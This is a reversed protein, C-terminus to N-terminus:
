LKRRKRITTQYPHCNMLRKFKSPILHMYVDTSHSRCCHGLLARTVTFGHRDAAYTAFTHRLMRPTVNQKVGAAKATDRVMREIWRKDIPKNRQNRFLVPDDPPHQDLYDKLTNAMETSVPTRKFWGGKVHLFICEQDLFIDEPRLNVIEQPRPGATCLLSLITFDQLSCYQATYELLRYLDGPKLYLPLRQRPREKPHPIYAAPDITIYQRLKLFSFFKRIVWIIM